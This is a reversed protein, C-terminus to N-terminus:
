IGGVIGCVLLRVCGANPEEIFCICFPQGQYLARTDRYKYGCWDSGNPRCRWPRCHALNTLGIVVRGNASWLSSQAPVDAPSSPAARTWGYRIEDSVDISAASLDTFSRSHTPLPHPSTAASKSDL